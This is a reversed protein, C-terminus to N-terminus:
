PFLFLLFLRHNLFVESVDPLDAGITNGLERNVCLANTKCKLKFNLGYSKLLTTLLTLIHGQPVYLAGAKTESFIRVLFDAEKHPQFITPVLLYNGPPLAFRESVERTNIYTRSRAKSGNFRFFDKDVHDENNPSQLSFLCLSESNRM